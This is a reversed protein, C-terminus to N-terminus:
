VSFLDRTLPSISTKDKTTESIPSSYWFKCPCILETRYLSREHFLCSGLEYHSNLSWVPYSFYSLLFDSDSENILMIVLMKLPSFLVQRPLNQWLFALNLKSWMMLLKWSHLTSARRLIRCTRWLSEKRKHRRKVKRKRRVRVEEWGELLYEPTGMHRFYCLSRDWLLAMKFFKNLSINCEYSFNYKLSMHLILCSTGHTLSRQATICPWKKLQFSPM